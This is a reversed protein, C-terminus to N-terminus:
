WVQRVIYRVYDSPTYKGEECAKDFEKWDDVLRKDRPVAVPQYREKIFDTRWKKASGRLTIMSLNLNTNIDAKHM